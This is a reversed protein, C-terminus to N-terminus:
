LFHDNIHSVYSSPIMTNTDVLQGDIINSSIMVQLEQILVERNDNGFPLKELDITTPLTSGQLYNFIDKRLKSKSHLEM